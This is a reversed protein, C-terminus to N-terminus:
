FFCIICKKVAHRNAKYSTNTECRIYKERANMVNYRDPICQVINEFGIKDSLNHLLLIHKLQIGVYYMQRDKGQWLREVKAHPFVFIINPFYVVPKKRLM